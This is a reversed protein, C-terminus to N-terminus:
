LRKALEEYATIIFPMQPVITKTDVTALPNHAATDGLFKIGKIEKATKSLLFPVGSLKEQVAVDVMENLGLWRDAHHKDKLLHQRGNKGLVIIILKELIKRLLFAASLGNKGFNDRLENLEHSFDKNLKTVLKESFLEDEIERVKTGKHIRRLADDRHMHTLVWYNMTSGVPKVAHVIGARMFKAMYTQVHSTRWRKGLKEQIRRVVTASSIPEDFEDELILKKLVGYGSEPDVIVAEAKAKLVELSKGSM